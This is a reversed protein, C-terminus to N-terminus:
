KAGQPYKAIIEEAQRRLEKKRADLSMPSPLKLKKRLEEFSKLVQERSVGDGNERDM